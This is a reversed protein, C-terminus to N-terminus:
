FRGTDMPDAKSQEPQGDGIPETGQTEQDATMDGQGHSKVKGEDDNKFMSNLDM